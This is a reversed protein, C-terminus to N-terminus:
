GLPPPLDRAVDFDIHHCRSYASLAAVHIVSLAPANREETPSSSVVGSLSEIGRSSCLAPERWALWQQYYTGDMETADWAPAAERLPLTWLIVYTPPRGSPCGGKQTASARDARHGGRRGGDNEPIRRRGGSGRRAMRHTLPTRRHGDPLTRAAGCREGATDKHTARRARM